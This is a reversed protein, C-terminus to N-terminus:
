ISGRPIKKFFAVTSMKHFNSTVMNLKGIFFGQLGWEKLTSREM